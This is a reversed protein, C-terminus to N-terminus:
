LPPGRDIGCSAAVNIGISDDVVGHQVILRSARQIDPSRDRVSRKRVRSAEFLTLTEATQIAVIESVILTFEGQKGQFNGPLERSVGGKRVYMDIVIIINVICMCEHAPYEDNCLCSVVIHM